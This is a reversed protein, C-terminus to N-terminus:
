QPAGSPPQPVAAQGAMDLPQLTSNIFLRDSGKVFPMNKKQRAEAPMMWGNQIASAIFERTAVSDMSLLADRDFEAYFRTRSFLKRKLEDEIAKLWPEIGFRLFSLTQQEVGTGWSTQKDTEMALHPPVGFLRCIDTVQFRRSELTQADKPSIEMSTWKTEKDVFIPRGVNAVGVHNQEFQARLRAMGEESIGAPIELLGSTTVGNAHLRGTAEAMALDLGVTQRGVFGIPSLGKLGDFGLGPVHLVDSQDLDLEGGDVRVRYRTRGDRRYPTVSSRQLPFFGVVRNANDREILSYHNGGLLLDVGVIQRWTFSGMLDNPEDHLLYHLKHDDADRRGGVLKEYVSLPITAILGSVLSVCRFVTTSRMSSQESVPPGAHTPGGGMAELLWPAPNSLPTAPNELAAAQFTPEVRDGEAVRDPKRSFPWM